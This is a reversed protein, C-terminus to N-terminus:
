QFLAATANHAVSAAASAISGGGGGSSGVDAAGTPSRAMLELVLPALWGAALHASYLFLLRAVLRPIIYAATAERRKAAEMAQMCEEELAVRRAGAEAQEAAAAASQDAAADCAAAAANAAAARGHLPGAAAAGLRLGAAAARLRAAVVGHSAAAFRHSSAALKHLLAAMKHYVHGSVDRAGMLTLVYDRRAERATKGLQADTEAVEAIGQAARQLADAAQQLSPMVRAQLFAAALADSVSQQVPPFAARPRELRRATPGEEASGGM